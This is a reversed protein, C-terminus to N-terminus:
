QLRASDHSPEEVESHSTRLPEYRTASDTVLAVLELHQQDSLTFTTMGVQVHLCSQSCRYISDFGDRHAFLQPPNIM